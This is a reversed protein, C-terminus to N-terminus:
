TLGGMYLNDQVQAFTTVPLAIIAGFTALITATSLIKTKM